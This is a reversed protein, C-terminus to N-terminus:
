SELIDNVWTLARVAQPFGLTTIALLAIHRIAEPTIGMELARRTHSHTAGELGAGIALSLKVLQRTEDNLPGARHAADGLNDYVSAIEPYTERIRIYVEPLDAMATEREWEEPTNLNVFPRVSFGNADLMAETVTFTTVLELFDYIALSKRALQKEMIPIVNQHYVAHLSQLRGRVQPIVVDVSDRRQNILFRLLDPSVFPMDCALCLVSPTESVVLATYIGGLAGGGPKLDAHVPLGFVSYREIDNAILNIPLRLQSAADIVHQVMPKGALMLFAKDRGMRRSQGGALIAISIKATTM